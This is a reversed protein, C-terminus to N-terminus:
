SSVAQVAAFGVRPSVGLAPPLGIPDFANGTITYVKGQDRMNKIFEETDNGNFM